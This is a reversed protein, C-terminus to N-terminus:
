NKVNPIISSISIKNTICVVPAITSCFASLRHNKKFGQFVPETTESSLDQFTQGGSHMM